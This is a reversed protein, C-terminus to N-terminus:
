NMLVQVLRVSFGYYRYSNYNGIYLHYSSFFLCYADDSSSATSSWYYGGTGAYYVSSGSRDGAAPLFVAGASEMKEWQTVTYHNTSAVLDYTEYTMGATFGCGTPLTWEDPLVVVGGIGNVKAAGYKNSADSRTIMLYKWEDYTLMRWSGPADEGVHNYVGWDANAYNGTLSNSSRGGPYYDSYNRSTSWPEYSNAGSEWGSTGWGFLDIWGSYISSMNNNAEGIYDWQHEAFRWTGQKTTGDACQHSGLAANFQLNGRSFTVKTTASVSFSGIGSSPSSSAQKTMEITMKYYGGNTLAANSKEYTYTDAGVTATLTINKGNFGPVAAYLVGEGNTTYTAAQISTLTAIDSTGDNLTLSSPSLLTTGDAADKLTFRVIAQQSVFAAEGSTYITGGSVSAVEVNEAVAYDCNSSIYALTGHQNTYAPRLFRLTLRDGAEITGTLNGDLQVNAGSSQAELYGGLEAGKTANYVSVREGAAWAANLTTGDLSLVKRPGNLPTDAGKSATVCMRYTAANTPQDPSNQDKKCGTLVTSATLLTVAM